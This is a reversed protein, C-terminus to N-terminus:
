KQREEDQGGIVVGEQKQKGLASLRTRKEETAKEGGKGRRKKDLGGPGTDCDWM